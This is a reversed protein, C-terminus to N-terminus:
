RVGGRVPSREPPHERPRELSLPGGYAGRAYARREDAHAGRVQEKTHGTLVTLVGHAGQPPAKATLVESRRNQTEAHARFAPKPRNTLVTLVGTLVSM